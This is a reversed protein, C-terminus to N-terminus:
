HGSMSSNIKRSNYINSWPKKMNAAMVDMNLHFVKGSGIKMEPVPANLIALDGTFKPYEGDSGKCIYLLGGSKVWDLFTRQRGPSIWKPNHDMLVMALTDTAAKSTPFLDAPFRPFNLRGAQISGRQYLYVGAAHTFKWPYIMKDRNLHIQGRLGKPNADKWSLYYESTGSIYTTFQVWRQTGPALYVEQKQSFDTQFIGDRPGFWVEGNFPVPTPNDLLISVPNFAQPRVRNNFGWVVTERRELNVLSLDRKQASSVVPSMLFLILLVWRMSILCNINMMTTCRVRFRARLNAMTRHKRRLNAIIIRLSEVRLIM